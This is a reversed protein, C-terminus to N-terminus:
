AVGEIEEVQEVESPRIFEAREKMPLDRWHQPIDVVAGAGDVLMLVKGAPMQMLENESVLPIDKVGAPTVKRQPSSMSGDPRVVSVFNINMMQAPITGALESFYRASVNDNVRYIIKVDCAGILNNSDNEGYKKYLGALSQIYIFTPLKYSRMTNFKDTLGSIKGGNLLEDFLLFVEDRQRYNKMLLRIVHMVTTSYLSETEAQRSQEFQLFIAQRPQALVEKLSIDSSTMNEYITPNDLFELASLLASIASSMFRENDGALRAQRMLKAPVDEGEDIIKEILKNGSKFGSVYAYVAPLSVAGNEAKIHFIVGRLIKQATLAFGQTEDSLAPVLIKVIEGLESDDVDDLLNYKLSKPDTPNIVIDNYEFGEIIGNAHLTGWIEPKIDTVVYSKGSKSWDVIQSFIYNTKGTGSVGVVLGRKECSCTYNPLELRYPDAKLKKKKPKGYFLLPEGVAGYNVNKKLLSIDTNKRSPRLETKPSTDRFFENYVWAIALGIAVCAVLGLVLYVLINNM